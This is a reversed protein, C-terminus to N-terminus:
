SSWMRTVANERDGAGWVRGKPPRGAPVKCSGGKQPSGSHSGGLDGPVQRMPAGAAEDGRKSTHSGAVAASTGWPETSGMNRAVMSAIDALKEDRDPSTTTRLPSRPPSGRPQLAPQEGRPKVGGPPTAPYGGSGGLSRPAASPTYSGLMAPTKPSALLMPCSGPASRRREARCERSETSLQASPFSPMRGNLALLAHPKDSGRDSAYSSGGGEKSAPWLTHSSESGVGVSLLSGASGTGASEKQVRAHESRGPSLALARALGASPSANLATQSSQSAHSRTGDESGFMEFILDEALSLVAPPPTRPTRPTTAGGGIGGTSKRSPRNSARPTIPLGLSHSKRVHPRPLGLDIQAGTIDVAVRFDASLLSCDSACPSGSGARLSGTGVRLASASAASSVLPRFKIFPSSQIGYGRPAPDVALMVAVHRSIVDEASMRGRERVLECELQSAVLSRRWDETELVIRMEREEVNAARVLLAREREATDALEACTGGHEVQLNRYRETSDALEARLEYECRKAENLDTRLAREREESDAIEAKLERLCVINSRQSRAQKDHFNHKLKQEQEEVLTVVSGQLSDAREGVVRDALEQSLLRVEWDRQRLETLLGAAGHQLESVLGVTSALRDECPAKPPSLSMRPARIMSEREVDGRFVDRRLSHGTMRPPSQAGSSVEGTGSPSRFPAGHSRPPLPINTPMGGAVDGGAPARFSGKRTTPPPSAGGGPPTATSGGRPPSAAPSRLPSRPGGMAPPGRKMLQRPRPGNGQGLEMTTPRELPDASDHGNIASCATRPPHDARGETAWDCPAWTFRAM